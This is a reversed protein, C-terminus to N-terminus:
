AERLWHEVDAKISEDFFDKSIALLETKVAETLHQAEYPRIRWGEAPPLASLTRFTLYGSHRQVGTRVLGILRKTSVDTPDLGLAQLEDSKMRGPGKVYLFRTVQRHPPNISTEQRTGTVLYRRKTQMAAHVAKPLVNSGAPRIVQFRQGQSGPESTAHRFPIRLYKHGNKSLRAKPAYPLVLHLDIEQGGKEIVEAQPDTSTILVSPTEEQPGSELHISNAYDTKNLRVMPDSATGLRLPHGEAGSIQTAKEKWLGVGVQGLQNLRQITQPFLHHLQGPTLDVALRKLFADPVLRLTLPIDITIRMALKM